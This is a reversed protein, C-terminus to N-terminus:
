RVRGAEYCGRAPRGFQTAVRFDGGLSCQSLALWGSGRHGTGFPCKHTVSKVDDADTTSSWPPGHLVVGTAVAVPVTLPVPGCKRLWGEPARNFEGHGQQYLWHGQGRIVVVEDLGRGSEGGGGGEEGEKGKILEGDLEVWMEESGVGLMLCRVKGLGFGQESLTSLRGGLKQQGWCGVWPSPWDSGVGYLCSTLWFKTVKDVQIAKNSKTKIANTLLSLDQLYTKYMQSLKDDYEVASAPLYSNALAM